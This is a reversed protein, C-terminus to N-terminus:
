AAYHPITQKLTSLTVKFNYAKKALKKRIKIQILQLTTKNYLNLRKKPPFTKKKNQFKSFKFDLLERIYNELQVPLM